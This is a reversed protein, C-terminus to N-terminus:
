VYEEPNTTFPLTIEFSTSIRPYDFGEAEIEDTIDVSGGHAEIIEKILYGGFGDGANKGVRQGKRTLDDITFNDPLCKGNNAIDLQLINNSEFDFLFEFEILPNKMGPFAHKVANEVVNDLATRLMEKDGNIYISKFGSNKLLPIDYEFNVEFESSRNSKLVNCYDKIFDIFDIATKNMTRVDIEISTRNLTNKVGELDSGIIELHKQLTIKSKSTKTLNRLEPNQSFVQDELISLVKSFSDRINKVSGALSHRLYSIDDADDIGSERKLKALALEEDRIVSRLKNVVYIKQDELSPIPIKINLLDEPKLRIAQSTGGTFLKIQRKVEDSKLIHHIYELNADIGEKLGLVVIYNQILFNVQSEKSIASDIKSGITNMFLYEGIVIKPLQKSPTEVLSSFDIYPAANMIDQVKLIPYTQKINSPSGKEISFLDSLPTGITTEDLFYQGIALSYNKAVVQGKLVHIKRKDDKSDLIQLSKDLDLLRDKLNSTYVGSLDIMEISSDIARDKDIVIINTKIGTNYFVGVPLSIIKDLLNGEILSRRQEIDEIRSSFLFSDPAVFIIKGKNKASDLSSKILFHSKGKLSDDIQNTNQRVPTWLDFPPVCTILDFKSSSIWEKISDQQNFVYNSHKEHANLRMSGITWISQMLEQGYYTQDKHLFMGFSAYGAFPNYIVASPDLKAVAIVLQCIEPRTISEVTLKGKSQTIKLLLSEFVDPFSSGLDSRNIESLKLILERVSSTLLVNQSLALAEFLEKYFSDQNIRKNFEKYWVDDIENKITPLVGDNYASVLFLLLQFSTSEKSSFLLNYSKLLHNVISVMIQNKGRKSICM